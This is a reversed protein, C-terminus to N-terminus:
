LNSALYMLTEFTMGHMDARAIRFLGLGRGNPGRLAPLWPAALFQLCSLAPRYATYRHIRFFTGHARTPTSSTAAALFLSPATCRLVGFNM